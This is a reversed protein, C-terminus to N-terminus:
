SFVVTITSTHVYKLYVPQYHCAPGAAPRHARMSPSTSPLSIKPLIGMKRVLTEDETRLRTHKFFLRAAEQNATVCFTLAKNPQTHHAAWVLLVGFLAEGVDKTQLFLLSAKESSSM